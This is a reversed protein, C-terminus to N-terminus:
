PARTSYAIDVGTMNNMTFMTFNSLPFTHFLDSKIQPEKIM